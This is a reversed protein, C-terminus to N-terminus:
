PDVNSTNYLDRIMLIDKLDYSIVCHELSDVKTLKSCSFEQIHAYNTNGADAEKGDKIRQVFHKSADFGLQLVETAATYNLTFQKSSQDGRNDKKTVVQNWKIEM